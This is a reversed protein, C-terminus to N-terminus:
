ILVDKRFSDYKSGLFLGGMLWTLGALLRRKVGSPYVARVITAAAARDKGQSLLRAFEYDIQRGVESIKHAAV